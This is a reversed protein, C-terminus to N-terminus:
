SQKISSILFDKLDYIDCFVPDDVMEKLYSISTEHAIDGEVYFNLFLVKNEADLDELVSISDHIVGLKSSAVLLYLDPNLLKSFALCDETETLPSRLGGALEIFHFDVREPAKAVELLDNASFPDRGLYKAAIPPALPFALWHDKHCVEYLKEGSAKSLIHADTLNNSFEDEGFSQVPKRVCVSFGENRLEQVLKATVYTKGVGTSTASVVIKM